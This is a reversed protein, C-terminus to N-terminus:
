SAKQKTLNSLEIQLITLKQKLKEKMLKNSQLISEFTDGDMATEVEPSTKQLNTIFLNQMEYFYIDSNLSDIKEQLNKLDKDM